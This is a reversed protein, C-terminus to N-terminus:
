VSQKDRKKLMSYVLVDALMAVGCLSFITVIMPTNVKSTQESSTADDPTVVLTIGEFEEFRNLDRNTRNILVKAGLESILNQAFDELANYEERIMEYDNYWKQANKRYSAVIEENEADWVPIGGLTSEIKEAFAEAIPMMSARKHSQYDTLRINDIMITIAKEPPNSANVFYWRLFDLRTWDVANDVETSFPLRIANWGDNECQALIDPLRWNKEEKDCTGSSTLEIANDGFHVQSLADVDSIYIWFELTDMKSVDLSEVGLIDIVQFAFSSQGNTTVPNGAADTYTGLRYSLCSSGAMANETDLEFAGLPVDCAFLPISHETTQKEEADSIKQTTAYVSMGSMLVCITVLLTLIKKM